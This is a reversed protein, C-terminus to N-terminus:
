SFCRCFSMLLSLTVSSASCSLSFSAIANRCVIHYYPTLAPEYLFSTYKSHPRYTIDRM